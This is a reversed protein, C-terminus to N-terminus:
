EAAAVRVPPEPVSFRKTVEEDPMALMHKYVEPPYAQHPKAPDMPPQKLKGGEGKYAAPRKFRALEEDKIGALAQVEPDIWARADIAAASTAIELSLGEPGAFYISKCMGHDLPGIVNVGRSRIRDRMNLLEADSDVNFAVHQMTGPASPLGPNGAHSVGIQAKTAKIKDNQVFAVSATDNLRLFGHWTGEVGHMWYLAVLEMGLVDSFFEIQAKMNGTSIALHHLGNARTM